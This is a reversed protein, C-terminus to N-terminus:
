PHLPKQRTQLFAACRQAREAPRCQAFRADPAEIALPLGPPLADILSWALHVPGEGPARRATRAEQRLLAAVPRESAAADCLQAYAIWRPVVAQVDQPTGGSRYLHLADILVGANAPNAARLVRLADALTATHCYPMFELGVRLGFGRALECLQGFHQLLRDFHPDNGAMLVHSVGLEAAAAFVGAYRAPATREDIWLAEVDFFRIGRDQARALLERRAAVNEAWAIPPDMPTPPIMRLGVAEFGAAAAADVFDPAPLDLMTLPALSIVRSASAVM